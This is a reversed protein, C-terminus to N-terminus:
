IVGPNVSNKRLRINAGECRCTLNTDGFDINQIMKSILLSVISKYLGILHCYLYICELWGVFRHVQFHLIITYPHEVVHEVLIIVSMLRIQNMMLLKSPHIVVIELNPM